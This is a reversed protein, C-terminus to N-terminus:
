AARWDILRSRLRRFACMSQAGLQLDPVVERLMAARQRYLESTYGRKMAKLIRDSGHQAPL